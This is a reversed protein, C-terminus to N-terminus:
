VDETHVDWTRPGIKTAVVQKGAVTGIHRTADHHNDAIVTQQVVYGCSDKTESVVQPATYKEHPDDLLLLECVAGVIFRLASM